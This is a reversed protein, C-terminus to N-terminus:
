PQEVPRVDREFRTIFDRVPAYSANDAPYFRATEMGSLIQQGQASEHLRLLLQQVREYVPAPVDDRAMVSNNILHPTAALVKLQAAETPHERQFARWPPPWSVGAASEGLYAHMIASEQSGVYRNDIDRKINIGKEYLFYQPMICAALATPSPYTVIKGKLDAPTQIDSDTRVIFLGSFDETDGAQAIVHYGAKMAELTQWPNPLLFASDRQRFKAEYVQYDRSAELEFRAGQMHRNLFDILPQYGQVLKAPNHLPHVALYYVPTSIKPTASYQPGTPAASDRDCGALLWLLALCYRAAQAQYKYISILKM